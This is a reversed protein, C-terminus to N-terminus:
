GAMGEAPYATHCGFLVFTHFVTACTSACTGRHECVKCVCIGALFKATRKVRDACIPTDCNIDCFTYACCGMLRKDIVRGDTGTVLHTAESPELTFTPGLLM